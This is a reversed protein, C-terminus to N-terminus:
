FNRDRIIINQLRLFVISKLRRAFFRLSFDSNSSDISLSGFLRDVTDLSCTLHNSSKFICEDAIDFIPSEVSEIDTHCFSGREKKGGIRERGEKSKTGEERKRV